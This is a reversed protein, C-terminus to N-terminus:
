PPTGIWLTTTYEGHEFNYQENEGIEVINVKAARNMHIEMASICATLSIAITFLKSLM